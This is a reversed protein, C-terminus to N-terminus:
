RRQLRRFVERSEKDYANAKDVIERILAERRAADADDVLQRESHARSQAANFQLMENMTGNLMAMQGNMIQMAAHQGQSAPIEAQLEKLHEWNSQVRGMAQVEHGTLIERNHQRSDEVKAIRDIYEDWTLGTAAFENYRGAALKELDNLAGYFNRATQDLQQVKAYMQLTDKGWGGFSNLAAGELNKMQTFYQELQTTYQMYQQTSQMLLQINNLIQTVETAGGALAGAQSQPTVVSLAAGIAACCIRARINM